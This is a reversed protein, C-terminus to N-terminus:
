CAGGAPERASSTTFNFTSYYPYYYGDWVQLTQYYLEPEGPCPAFMHTRPLWTATTSETLAVFGDGYWFQVHYPSTGSWSTTWHSSVMHAHSQYSPSISVSVALTSGSSGMVLAIALMLALFPRKM